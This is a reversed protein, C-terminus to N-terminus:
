NIWFLVQFPKLAKEKLNQIFQVHACFLNLINKTLLNVKIEVSKKL